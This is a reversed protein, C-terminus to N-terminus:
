VSEEEYGLEAKLNKIEEALKKIHEVLKMEYADLKEMERRHTFSKFGSMVSFLSGFLCPKIM